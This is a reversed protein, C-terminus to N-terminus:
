KEWKGEDLFTNKDQRVQIVQWIKKSKKNELHRKLLHRKIKDSGDSKDLRDLTDSKDSKYSHDSKDSKDWNDSKSLKDLEDSKDSKDLKDSKSLKNNKNWVLPDNGHFAMSKLSESPSTPIRIALQIPALVM